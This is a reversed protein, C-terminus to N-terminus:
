TKVTYEEKGPGSPGAAMLIQLGSSRDCVAEQTGEQKTCINDHM